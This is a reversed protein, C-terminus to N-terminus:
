SLFIYSIVVEQVLDAYLSSFIIILKFMVPIGEEDTLKNISM